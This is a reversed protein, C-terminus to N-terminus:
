PEPNRSAAPRQFSATEKVMVVPPPSHPHAHAYVAEKDVRYGLREYFPLVDLNYQSVALLVRAYGERAAVEEVARVLAAGLGQGRVAPRTALKNLTLTDPGDPRWGVCGVAEEGGWALFGGGQGLSWAVDEVRTRTWSSRPDMGAAMMVAHFAPADAPGAPRLTPTM